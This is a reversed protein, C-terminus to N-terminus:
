VLQIMYYTVSVTPRIEASPYNHFFHTVDSIYSDKWMLSLAAARKMKLVVLKREFSRFTQKNTIQLTMRPNQLLLTVNKLGSNDKQKTTNNNLQLQFSVNM